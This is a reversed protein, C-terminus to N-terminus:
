QIVLTEADALKITVRPYGKAFLCGGVFRMKGETGQSKEKQRDEIQKSIGNSPRLIYYKSVAEIMYVCDGVQCHRSVLGVYGTDTLFLRRGDCADFMDQMAEFMSSFFGCEIFDRLTTGDNTPMRGINEIFRVRAEMGEHYVRIREEMVEVVDDWGRGRQTVTDCVARRATEYKDYNENLAQLDPVMAFWEALPFKNNFLDCEGGISVIVGVSRGEVQLQHLLEGNDIKTDLVKYGGRKSKDDEEFYRSSYHGLRQRKRGSSGLSWDPV